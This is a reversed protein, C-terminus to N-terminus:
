ISYFTTMTEQSLQGQAVGSSWLCITPIVSTFYLTKEYSATAVPRPLYSAFISVPIPDVNTLVHDEGGKKVDKDVGPISENSSLLAVGPSIVEGRLVAYLGCRKQLTAQRM